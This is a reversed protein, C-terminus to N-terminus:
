TPEHRVFEGAELRDMYSDLSQKIKKSLLVVGAINPFAMGLIMLDGFDLVSQASFVAGAWACFLFLVKYVLISRLGFLSAWCQEGYYSWSIMTSFAFLVATLSLVAPFWTFVTGFAYSTMQIGSGADPNAYAGTVVIVLGTMTCVVITDIFPELLSVMGERVPEDTTAASHAISASGIGAENSFAARRFGQILVGLFGGLGAEMSFARELITGFAGPVAPAHILLILMGAAVYISCMIPVLFGAVEGIRKIGGLIVFGVLTALLLGFVAAGATGEFFPLQAAVQAYSQNAQFM